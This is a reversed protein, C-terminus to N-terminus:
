KKSDKKKSDKHDSVPVTTDRGAIAEEKSVPNSSGDGTNKIEAVPKIVFGFYNLMALYDKSRTIDTALVIGDLNKVILSELKEIIVKSKEDDKPLLLVLNANVLIHGRKSLIQTDM